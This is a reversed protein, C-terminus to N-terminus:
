KLGRKKAMLAKTSITRQSENSIGLANGDRMGDEVGLIADDVAGDADGDLM